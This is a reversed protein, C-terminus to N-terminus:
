RFCSDLILRFVCKPAHMNVKRNSDSSASIIPSRVPRDFGNSVLDPPFNGQWNTSQSRPYTRFISKEKLFRIQKFRPTFLSNQIKLGIDGLRRDIPSQAQIQDLRRHQDYGIQALRTCPFFQVSFRCLSVKPLFVWRKVLGPM